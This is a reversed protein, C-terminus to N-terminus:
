KHQQLVMSLNDMAANIRGYQPLDFSLKKREYYKRLQDCLGLANVNDMNKEPVMAVLTIGNDDVYIAEFQSKEINYYVGSKEALSRSDLRYEFNFLQWWVQYQIKM